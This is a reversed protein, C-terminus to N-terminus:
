SQIILCVKNPQFIPIQLKKSHKDADDFEYNIESSVISKSGLSLKEQPMLIKSPLHVTQPQHMEKIINSQQKIDSALNLVKEEISKINKFLFKVTRAILELLAKGSSSVTIDENVPVDQQTKLHRKGLFFTLTQRM